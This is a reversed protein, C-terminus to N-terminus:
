AAAEYLEVYRHIMRDLSFHDVVFSRANHGHAARMDPSSIYERIAEAVASDDGAKVFIGRQRHAVLETNGGV